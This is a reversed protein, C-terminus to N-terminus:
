EKRHLRKHCSVCVWIIDKYDDYSIHHAQTNTNGCFLCSKKILEGISKHYYVYKRARIKNLWKLRMRKQSNRESEKGKETSRWKKNAKKQVEKGKDTKSYNKKNILCRICTKIRKGNKEKFDTRM